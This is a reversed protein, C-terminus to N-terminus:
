QLTVGLDARDDALRVVHTRIRTREVLMESDGDVVDVREDAPKVRPERRTIMAVGEAAVAIPYVFWHPLRITSPRRGVHEAVLKLIRELTFDEGGLVYREGPKGRELAM